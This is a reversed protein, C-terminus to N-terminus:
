QCALSCTDADTDTECQSVLSTIHTRITPVPVPGHTHTRTCSWIYPYPYPYPVMPLPVMPVPIPVPGPHWTASSLSHTYSNNYRRLMTGPYRYLYLYWLNIDVITLVSFRDLITDSNLNTFLLALIFGHSFDSSDSELDSFLLNSVQPCLAIYMYRQCKWALPRETINWM